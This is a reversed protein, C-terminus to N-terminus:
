LGYSVTNSQTYFFQYLYDWGAGNAWGNSISAYALNDNSSQDLNFVGAWISTGPAPNGPGYYGNGNSTYGFSFYIMGGSIFPLEYRINTNANIPAEVITLASYPANSWPWEVYFVTHWNTGNKYIVNFGVEVTGGSEYYLNVGLQSIQGAPVNNINIYFLNGNEFGVAFYQIQIENNSNILITYGAQLFNTGIKTAANPGVGYPSFAIWISVANPNTYGAYRLSLNSYTIFELASIIPNYGTGFITSYTDSYAVGAWAYSNYTFSIQQAGLQSASIASTPMALILLALSLTLLALLSKRM